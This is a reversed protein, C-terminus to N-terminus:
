QIAPFMAVIQTMWLLTEVAAAIFYRKDHRCGAVILYSIFFPASPILVVGYLAIVQIVPAVQVPLNTGEHSAMFAVSAVLVALHIALFARWFVYVPRPECLEVV